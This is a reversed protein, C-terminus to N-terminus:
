KRWIVKPYHDSDLKEIDLEELLRDYIETSGKHFQFEREWIHGEECWFKIIISVGRQLKGKNTTEVKLGSNDIKCNIFNKIPYVETEIPHNEECKCYPCEIIKVKDNSNNLM